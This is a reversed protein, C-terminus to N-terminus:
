MDSNARLESKKILWSLRGQYYKALSIMCIEFRSNICNNLRNQLQLLSLNKEESKAYVKSYHM